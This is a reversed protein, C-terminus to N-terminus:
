HGGGGHDDKKGGGGGKAAPIKLKEGNAVQALYNPIDKLKYLFTGLLAFPALFWAGSLIGNGVTGWFGLQVGTAAVGAVAVPAAFAEGSVLAGGGAGAAAPMGWKRMTNPASSTPNEPATPTTLSEPRAADAARKRMEAVLEVAAAQEAPDPPFTVTKLSEAPPM